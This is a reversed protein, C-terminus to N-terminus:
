KSINKNCKENKYIFKNYLAIIIFVISVLYYSVLLELNSIPIRYLVDINAIVINIFNATIILRHWNCFKFTISCVYLLLTTIISNGLIFDLVYIHKGVINFYYLTNNILLGMMQM